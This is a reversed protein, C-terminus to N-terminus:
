PTNDVIIDFAFVRAIMADRTAITTKPKISGVDFLVVPPVTFINRNIATYAV